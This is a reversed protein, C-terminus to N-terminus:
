KEAYGTETGLLYSTGGGLGLDLRVPAFLGWQMYISQCPVPEGDEPLIFVRHHEEDVRSFYLKYTGSTYVRYNVGEFSVTQWGPSLTKEEVSLMKEISDQALVPGGTVLLVAAALVFVKVIGKM